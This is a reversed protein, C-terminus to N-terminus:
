IVPNPLNYNIIDCTNKIDNNDLLCKKSIFYSLTALGCNLISFSVLDQPNCITLCYNTTLEAAYKNMCRPVGFGFGKINNLGWKERLMTAAVLSVTGGLSHGFFVVEDFSRFFEKNGHDLIAIVNNAANFYGGHFLYLDNTDRINILIPSSEGSIAVDSIHSIQEM